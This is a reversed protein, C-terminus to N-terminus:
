GGPRTASRMASFARLVLQNRVDRTEELIQERLVEDLVANMFELQTPIPKTAGDVLSFEVRWNSEATSLMASCTDSYRFAARRIATIPYANSDFEYHTEATM